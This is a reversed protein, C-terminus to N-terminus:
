KLAAYDPNVAQPPGNDGFMGTDYLLTGIPHVVLFCPVSMTPDPVDQRTLNYTEPDLNILYGCDFVYFRLGQPATQASIPELAVWFGAGLLRAVFGAIARRTRTRIKGNCNTPM